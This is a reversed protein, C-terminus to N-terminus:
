TSFCDFDWAGFLLDWVFELVRRLRRRQAHSLNLIDFSHGFSIDLFILATLIPSQLAIHYKLPFTKPMPYQLKFITQLKTSSIQSKLKM